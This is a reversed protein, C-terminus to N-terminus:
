LGPAPTGPPPPAPALRERPHEPRERVGGERGRAVEDGAVAADRLPDEPARGGVALLDLHVAAVDERELVALDRDLARVELVAGRSGAARRSSPAVTRCPM